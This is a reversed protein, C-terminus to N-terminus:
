GPTYMNDEEELATPSDSTEGRLGALLKNITQVQELHYEHQEQLTTMLADYEEVDCEGGSGPANLGANLCYNAANEVCMEDIENLHRRRISSSSANSSGRATQPKYGHEIEVGRLKTLLDNITHTEELHYERQKSLTLLLAEHEELDCESTPPSIMALDMDVCYKAANEVCMEDVESLHKHYFLATNTSSTTAAHHQAIGFSPRRSSPSRGVVVFANTTTTSLAATTAVAAALVAVAWCSRLQLSSSASSSFRM